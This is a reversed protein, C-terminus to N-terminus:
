QGSPLKAQIVVKRRTGCDVGCKSKVGNKIVCEKFARELEPSAHGRVNSSSVIVTSPNKSQLYRAIEGARGKALAENAEISQEVQSNLSGSGKYFQDYHQGDAYGDVELELAKGKQAQSLDKILTELKKAGDKEFNGNFDSKGTVFSETNFGINFQGGVYDLCIGTKGGAIKKEYLGLMFLAARTRDSSEFNGVLNEPLCPAGPACGSAFVAKVLLFAFFSFSLLLGRAGNM